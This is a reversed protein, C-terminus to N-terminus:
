FAWTRTVCISPPLAPNHETLNAVTTPQNSGSVSLSTTHGKLATLISSTPRLDFIEFKMKDSIFLRGSVPRIEHAATFQLATRFASVRSTTAIMGETLREALAFAPVYYPDFSNKEDAFCSSQLDNWHNATDVMRTQWGFNTSWYNALADLYEPTGWRAEFRLRRNGVVVTQDFDRSALSRVAAQMDPTGDEIQLPLPDGPVYRLHLILEKFRNYVKLQRSM